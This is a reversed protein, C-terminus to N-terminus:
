RGDYACAHRAARAHIQSHMRAPLAGHPRPKRPQRACAHGGAEFRWALRPGVMEPSAHKLALAELVEVSEVAADAACASTYERRVM